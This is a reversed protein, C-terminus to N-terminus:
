PGSTTGAEDTGTVNFLGVSDGTVVVPLGHDTCVELGEIFLFVSGGTKVSDGEVPAGYTELRTVIAGDSGSCLGIVVLIGVPNIVGTAGGCTSERAVKFGIASGVSRYM